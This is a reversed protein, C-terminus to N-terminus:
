MCVVGGGVCVCVTDVHLSYAGGVCVIDVHLSYQVGGGGCVCVIDVNL